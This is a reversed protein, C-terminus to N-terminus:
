WSCTAPKPMLSRSPSEASATALENDNLAAEIDLYGAGITFIDYQSTFTEATVADTSTSSVPFTKSATRMLRAKVQDPTLNPNQEILLVAAGSVMPAAMSTGSLRFLKNGVHNDQFSKFLESGRANLSVIVNGPAVLDPKVVHDILSPGKSSYTTIKDDARTDTGVMNMAGVTIVSPHNAPATITAYGDNDFSNNRGLNGAAVVVVIGADWAAQVAQCLPDTQYSEFVPRGLSLNMVRINYTDKLEIAREIAAIVASDTGSGQADLVKLSILDVESAIGAADSGDGAIIGAVHNGHGYRDLSTYDIFSESYTVRLDLDLYNHDQIGSDIVAVGIGEGEFGFNHAIDAYTTPVAQELTGRVKRDPSIYEIDPDAALAEVKRARISFAASRVHRFHKRFKGGQRTAREFNRTHPNQKYRVIVNVNANSRERKMERLDRSLKSPGAFALTAVFFLLILTQLQKM